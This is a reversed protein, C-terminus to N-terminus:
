YIIEELYLGCAPALNKTYKRSKEKIIDAISIDLNGNAIQVLSYVIIRIMYRLFGNGEFSLVLEGGNRKLDTKYITRITSSPQGKCFSAFDHTGILQILNQKLINIDLNELYWEYNIRLPDRENLMIKYIYRKKYVDYRSHFLPHIEELSKVQIDKPLQYNLYEFWKQKTLPKDTDFHFVYNLAHVGADTRSAGQILTENGNVVSIVKTLEGQITPQDKQVQFGNYRHGDYSIIGKYRISEDTKTLLVIRNILEGDFGLKIPNGLKNYGYAMHSNNIPSVAIGEFLNAHERVAEKVSSKGLFVLEDLKFGVDEHLLEIDLKM